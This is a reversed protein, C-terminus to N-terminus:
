KKLTALVQPASSSASYTLADDDPDVFAGSVDVNVTDDPALTRNPLTAAPVPSRNQVQTLDAAISFQDAAVSLNGPDDEAAGAAIDVTVTGSVAPTITASYSSGTGQLASASGNGVVLDALDFGIVSESFEVAISFPGTVPASADTSIVVTPSTTDADVCNLAAGGGALLAELADREAPDISLRYELKVAIVREAFWRGHREPM